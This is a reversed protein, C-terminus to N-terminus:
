DLQELQDLTASNALQERQAPRVKIERPDLRADTARVGDESQDSSRCFLARDPQDLSALLEQQELKELQDLQVLEVPKELLV